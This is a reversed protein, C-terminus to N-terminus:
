SPSTESAARLRRIAREYREIRAVVDTTNPLRRNNALNDALDALKVERAIADCAVQEIYREYSQGPRHTLAVVADVVDIPLGAARLEEVTVETDELVDHLVAAAQARFGDVAVMVRLPHLIYPEAEPSPYRQGRHARCALEVAVELAEADADLNVVGHDGLGSADFAIVGPESPNAPL